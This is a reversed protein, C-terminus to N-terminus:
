RVAGKWRAELREGAASMLEPACSLYWYTGSVHTHGLWTSLVPLLREVKEGRRYWRLLTEVAFRHRFDHLRPGHNAEPARLGIQRSLDLFARDIDTVAFRTGCTTVFFARLPVGSRQRSFFADRHRVYDALAALTSAHLPVLRSKGFKAKRITLVGEEWDIDEDKLALVEGIRMGTVALLGFICSCARSRYRRYWPGPFRNWSPYDKAAELLRLIEQESYLYPRAPRARAPLLGIPPTETATDDEIRYRAFGRVTSLRSAMTKPSLQQDATAFELALTTTIRTSKREKMFSLFQRLRTEARHLKFGLSRRLALYDAASQRLTKM